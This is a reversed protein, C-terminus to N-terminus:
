GHTAEQRDGQARVLRRPAVHSWALRLLTAALPADVRQRWVRTWGHHSYHRGPVVVGPHGEIMNLQDERELKLVLSPEEHSIMAFIRANVRFSPVGRHTDEYACPLALAIARLEDIGVM